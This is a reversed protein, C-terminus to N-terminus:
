QSHPMAATRSRWSSVPLMPAIAVLGRREIASGHGQASEPQHLQIRGYGFDQMWRGGTGVAPM